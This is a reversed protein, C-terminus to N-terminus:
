VIIGGLAVVGAGGLLLDVAAAGARSPAFFTGDLGTIFKIPEATNYTPLAGIEFPIFLAKPPPPLPECAWANWCGCLFPEFPPPPCFPDAPRCAPAALGMAFVICIGGLLRFPLPTTDVV